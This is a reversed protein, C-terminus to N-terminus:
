YAIANIVAEAAEQSSTSPDSLLDLLIDIFDPGLAVIDDAVDNRQDEDDFMEILKDQIIENLIEFSVDYTATKSFELLNCSMLDYFLCGKNCAYDHEDQYFGLDQATSYTEKSDLPDIYALGLCIRGVEDKRFVPNLKMTAPVENNYHSENTRIPTSVNQCDRVSNPHIYIMPFQQALSVTTDPTKKHSCTSVLTLAIIAGKEGSDTSCFDFALQDESPKFSEYGFTHEKCIDCRSVTTNGYVVLDAQKNQRGVRAGGNFYVTTDDLTSLETNVLLENFTETCLTSSIIILCLLTHSFLVIKKM